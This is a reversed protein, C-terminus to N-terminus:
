FPLGRRARATRASEAHDDHTAVIKRLTPWTIPVLDARVDTAGFTYDGAARNCARCFNGVNGPVFGSRAGSVGFHSAPILHGIEARDSSSAPADLRTSQECVVCLGHAYTHLYVGLATVRSGGLRERTAAVFTERDARVAALVDDLTRM